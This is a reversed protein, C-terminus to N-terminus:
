KQTSSSSQTSISFTKQNIYRWETDNSLCTGKLYSFASSRPYHLYTCCTPTLLLRIWGWLVSAMHGSPQGHVQAETHKWPEIGQAYCCGEARCSCCLHTSSHPILSAGASAARVLGMSAVAEKGKWSCLWAQQIQGPEAADLYRCGGTSRPRSTNCLSVGFPDPNSVLSLCLSGAKTKCSIKVVWKLNIFVIQCLWLTIWKSFQWLNSVFIAERLLFTGCHGHNQWM